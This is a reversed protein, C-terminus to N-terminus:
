REGRPGGERGSGRGGRPRRRMRDFREMQEPTLIEAVGARLRQQEATFRQRMERAVREFERRRAEFLAELRARQEPSFQADEQALRDLLREPAFARPGPAPGREGWPPAPLPWRLARPGIWLGAALGMSLGCVFVLAVFLAVWVRTSKDNM